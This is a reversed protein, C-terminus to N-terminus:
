IMLCVSRDRSIVIEIEINNLYCENDLDLLKFMFPLAIGASPRLPGSRDLLNPRGVCQGGPFIEPVILAALLFLNIFFELSLM